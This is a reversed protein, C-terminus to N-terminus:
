MIYDTSRINGASREMGRWFFFRSSIHGKALPHLCTHYYHPFLIGTTSVVAFEALFYNMLSIIIKELVSNM